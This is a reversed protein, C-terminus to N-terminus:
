ARNRRSLIRVEDQDVAIRRAVNMFNPSDFQDDLIAIHVTGGFQVLGKANARLLHQASSESGAAPEPLAPTVIRPMRGRFERSSVITIPMPAMTTPPCAAPPWLAVYATRV